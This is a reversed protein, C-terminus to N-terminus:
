PAATGRRSPPAAPTRNPTSGPLRYYDRWLERASDLDGPQIRVIRDTKFVMLIQRGRPNEHLTLLADMWEQKFPPAEVPTAIVYELMPKSRALVRLQALQPNMERALNLNVEDVVCADATGFFLPLICGQPKDTAKLSGLFSVARGLREKNLQVELWAIGANEGTRSYVLVNKGKLEGFGAIGSSPKVLAVYSYLSEGQAGRGSTFDPVVLRRAELELFETISIVLSDASHTELREVLEAVSDVIDVRSDLLFGKQQALVDAWVKLAAQADNRNVSNFTKSSAVEYLRARRLSVPAAQQAGAVVAVLGVIALTLWTNRATM